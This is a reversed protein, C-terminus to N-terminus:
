WDRSDRGCGIRVKRAIHRRMGGPPMSLSSAGAEDVLAVNEVFHSGNWAIRERRLHLLLLPIVCVGALLCRM